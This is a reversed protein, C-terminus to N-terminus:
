TWVKLSKWVLKTMIKTELSIKAQYSTPICVQYQSQHLIPVLSTNRYWAEVLVLRIPDKGHITISPAIRDVLGVENKRRSRILSLTPNLQRHTVTYCFEWESLTITLDRRQELVIIWPYLAGSISIEGLQNVIYTRWTPSTDMLFDNRTKRHRCDFWKNLTLLSFMCKSLKKYIWSSIIRWMNWM